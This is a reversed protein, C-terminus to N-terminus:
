SHIKNCLGLDDIYVLCHQCVTKSKGFVSHRSKLNNNRENNARADVVLCCVVKGGGTFREQHSNHSNTLKPLWKSAKRQNAQRSAGIWILCSLITHLWLYLYTQIHLPTYSWWCNNIAPSPSFLPRATTNHRMFYTAAVGTQWYLTLYQQTRSRGCM